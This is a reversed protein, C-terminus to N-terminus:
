PTVKRDPMGAVALTKYGEMAEELYIVRRALLLAFDSTITDLLPTGVILHVEALKLAAPEFMVTFGGGIAPVGWRGDDYHSANAALFARVEAKDPIRNM